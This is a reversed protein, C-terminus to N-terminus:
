KQCIPCYFTKRNSVLIKKIVGRKCRLCKKGERNHVCIFKGYGQKVGGYIISKKFIKRMATYIRNIESRRLLLVGKNPMVRAILCIEDAYMTGIGALLKENM